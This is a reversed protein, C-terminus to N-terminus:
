HQHERYWPRGDRSAEMVKEVKEWNKPRSGFWNPMIAVAGYGVFSVVISNGEEAKLKFTGDEASTTRATTGPVVINAGPMEEWWQDYVTGTWEGNEYGSEVTLEYNRSQIEEIIVIGQPSNDSNTERAKLKFVIPVVMRVRAPKGNQTAPKFPPLIKVVRVAEEDCGGGIGKMAEVHSISGDKRVVFEVDVRGEVGAQRAQLPYRIEKMIYANFAAVGGEFEPYAEM